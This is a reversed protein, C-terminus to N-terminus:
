YPGIVKLGFLEEISNLINFSSNEIHKFELNYRHEFDKDESTKILFEEASM